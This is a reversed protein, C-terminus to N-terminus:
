CHSRRKKRWGCARSRVLEVEAELALYLQICREELACVWTPPLEPGISYSHRCSRCRWLRWTLSGETAEAVLELPEGCCQKRPLAPRIWLIGNKVEGTITERENSGFQRIARRIAGRM